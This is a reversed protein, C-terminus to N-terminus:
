ELRGEALKDLPKRLTVLVGELALSPQESGCLDCEASESARAKPHGRRTRAAPHRDVCSYCCWLVTVHKWPPNRRLYALALRAAEDSPGSELLAELDIM